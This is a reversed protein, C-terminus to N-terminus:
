GLRVSQDSRPRAAPPLCPPRPTAQPCPCNSPALLVSDAFPFASSSLTAPPGDGDAEAHHQRGPGGGAAAGQETGGTHTSQQM